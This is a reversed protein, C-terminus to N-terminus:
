SNDKKEGAEIQKIYEDGEPTLNIIDDIRNTSKTNENKTSWEIYDVAGEVRSVTIINKKVLEFTNKRSQSKLKINKLLLHNSTYWEAVRGFPVNVTDDDNYQILNEM